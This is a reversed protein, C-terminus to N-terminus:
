RVLWGGDIALIHGNVYDAAKSSLFIAGGVLDSTQGWRASPIRGLIEANRKEDARIPATNATEIYGPAIANVQINDAALENAFAKTLGAVGHKSATYSPVFKGGQFSLMSAINIIKGGGQKKMEIAATKSLYYISSLNLDIVSKWDENSGELIPSRKITGANNVLIDIRGFADICEAVAEMAVSEKSLDGTAYAIKRGLAEVEKIMNAMNDDNYTFIFLDAGAKALGMALANGIGVNGGTVMAVKGELNFMNLM